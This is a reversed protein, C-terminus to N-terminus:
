CKQEAMRLLQNLAAGYYINYSALKTTASGNINALPAAWDSTASGTDGQSSTSVTTTAAPTATAPATAVPRRESAVTSTAQDSSGGCGAVNVTIAIALLGQPKRILGLFRV